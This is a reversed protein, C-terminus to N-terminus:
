LKKTDLIILKGVPHSFPLVAHQPSQDQFLLLFFAGIALIVGILLLKRVMDPLTHCCGAAFVIVLTSECPGPSPQPLIKSNVLPQPM